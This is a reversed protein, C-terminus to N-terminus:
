LLGYVSFRPQIQLVPVDDWFVANAHDAYVLSIWLKPGLVFVMGYLEGGKM